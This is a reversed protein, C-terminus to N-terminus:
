KSGVPNIANVSQNIYANSKKSKVLTALYNEIDNENLSLLETGNYYNMYAEFLPIYIKATNISYKKIELKQFYEAPCARYNSPLKRQRFWEIDLPKNDNRLPRNKFFYNCNVWAVGRFKEFIATLNTKNNKIFVMGYQNSWKPSPLEKILAQIIKDPNM